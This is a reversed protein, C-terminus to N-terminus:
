EGAAQLVHQYLTDSIWFGAQSKLEDVLSSVQPIFGQHKASLLVGLLGVPTIGLRNAVIRGKREDMLLLAGNLETALVIAEAEGPDLESSLSLALLHNRITRVEIWDAQTVATSGAQGAGAVVIEDYVAQPVVLTGYLQRLLDLQGIVALNIIPSTDSVVIM